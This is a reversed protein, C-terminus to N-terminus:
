VPLAAHELFVRVTFRLCRSLDDGWAIAKLLPVGTKITTEYIYILTNSTYLQITYMDIYGPPNRDKYDRQMKTRPQHGCLWNIWIHGVVSKDTHKNESEPVLPAM